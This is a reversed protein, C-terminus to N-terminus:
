QKNKYTHVTFGQVIFTILILIWMLDRYTEFSYNVFSQSVEILLWGIPMIPLAAKYSQNLIRQGRESKGESSKIFTFFVYLAYFFLPLLLIGVIKM